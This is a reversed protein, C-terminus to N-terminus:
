STGALALLFGIPINAWPRVEVHKTKECVNQARHMRIKGVEPDQTQSGQDPHHDRQFLQSKPSHQCNTYTRPFFMQHRLFCLLLVEISSAPLPHMSRPARAVRPWM